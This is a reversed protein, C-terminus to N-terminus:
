AGELVDFVPKQRCHLSAMWQSQLNQVQSRSVAPQAITQRQSSMLRHCNIEQRIILIAQGGRFMETPLKRLEKRSKLCLDITQRKGVALKIQGDEVSRQM